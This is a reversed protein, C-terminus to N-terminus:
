QSSVTQTSEAARAAVTSFPSVVNFLYPDVVAAEETVPSFHKGYHTGM